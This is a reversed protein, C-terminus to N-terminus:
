CFKSVCTFVLAILTLIFLIIAIILGKGYHENISSVIGILFLIINISLVIIIYVKM